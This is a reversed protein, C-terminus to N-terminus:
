TSGADLGIVRTKIRAGTRLCQLQLRDGPAMGLYAGDAM